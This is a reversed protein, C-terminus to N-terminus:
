AVRWVRRGDQEKRTIFATGKHLSKYRQIAWQITSTKDRTIIFSDGVAMKDFPYSFKNSQPIPINKEIEIM